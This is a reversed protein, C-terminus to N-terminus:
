RTRTVLSSCIQDYGFVLQDVRHLQEVQLSLALDRELEQGREQQSEFNLGLRVVADFVGIRYTDEM